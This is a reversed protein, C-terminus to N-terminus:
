FPLKKSLLISRHTFFGYPLNDMTIFHGYLNLSNSFTWSTFHGYSYFTWVIYIPDSPYNTSSFYKITTTGKKILNQFINFFFIFSHSSNRSQHLFYNFNQHVINIWPWFIQLPLYFHPPCLRCQDTWIPHPTYTGRGGWGQIKRFSMPPSRGQPIAPVGWLGNNIKIFCM